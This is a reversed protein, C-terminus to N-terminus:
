WFAYIVYLIGWLSSSDQHFSDFSKTNTMRLPSSDQHFSDLSQTNAIRASSILTLLSPLVPYVAFSSLPSRFTVPSWFPALHQLCQFKQSSISFNQEKRLGLEIREETAPDTSSLTGSADPLKGLIRLYTYAKFNKFDSNDDRLYNGFSSKLLLHFQTTSILGVSCKEM